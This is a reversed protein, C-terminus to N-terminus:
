DANAVLWATYNVLNITGDANTPAGDVIDKEIAAVNFTKKAAKTILEALQEKTLATPDLPRTAEVSM